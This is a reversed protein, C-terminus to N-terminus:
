VGASEDGPFFLAKEVWHIPSQPPGLAPTSPNSFIFIQRGTSCKRVQGAWLVTAVSIESFWSKSKIAAYSKLCAM